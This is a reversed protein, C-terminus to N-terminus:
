CDQGFKAGHKILVQHTLPHTSECSFYDLATFSGSNKHNIKVGQQILYEVVHSLNSDHLTSSLVILLHLPTDGYKDCEDVDAGKTEILLKFIHFPLLPTALCALHLLTMDFIGKINVDINSVNILYMLTNIDGGHNPDFRLLAYNLPIGGTLNQINIDCRKTEILYKFIELPIININICAYHLLTRGSFDKVNANIGQQHLLYTLIDVNGGKNPDFFRFATLLPTDGSRSQTNVNCGKTEILYKFIEFPTTNIHECYNHLITRGSWKQIRKITDDNLEWQGAQPKFQTIIPDDDLPASKILSQYYQQLNLRSLKHKQQLSQQLSQEDEESSLVARTLLEIENQVSHVQQPLM